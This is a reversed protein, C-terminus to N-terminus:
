ISLAPFLSLNMFSEVGCTKRYNKFKALNIYESIICGMFMDTRSNQAPCLLSHIFKAASQVLM